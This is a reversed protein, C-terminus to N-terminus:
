WNFRVGLRVSRAQTFLIGKTLYDPNTATARPNPISGLPTLTGSQTAIGGDGNCIADPIGACFGDQILNYREDLVTPKQRNFVNFMDMILNLRTNGIRVPYQVNLDTEYDSPGRGVSGRPVLYYEWNSYAVSYGYANLPLGSYWHTSTALNLGKLAGSPVDYSADFKIQHVRENSLRGNANVTFDAYDFASNINPDLQGTSVQFTGDYNGELRSWVYSALMQWNNSYTKRASFEISTNKREAKPAAVAPLSTDYFAMETGIGQSPNAIFYSGESPVLFDEIVRGLRRQIFKVGVSINRAVEYEGGALWEDIYQGRLDPDVPEVSSGLLTAPRPAAPDPRLASPSPDLNYCFCALEGGFARINIDLPINEYFRGFNGFIKSRGNRAADWVFGIRPSWNTTLDIVTLDDRDKVEQREWRIGGNISFNPRVKWNDQVYFANNLTRPEATLPIAVQWTSNDTRSFGPARDNVFYRHRYYITSGTTLKNIIQGGGGSYRDIASKNNEWDVGGKLENSGLFKTIDL